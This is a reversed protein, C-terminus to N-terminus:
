FNVKFQSLLRLFKRLIPSTNGQKWVATLCATPTKELISRYVVGERDLNRANSPLISIGMEAAVLGLITVMFVATQTVNPVFSTQSFLYHIQESLGSMVPNLPMIFAENKLDSLPVISQLALPHFEPLVLVFPEYTLIMTELDNAEPLESYLYLFVIDTQQDQLRQLLFASNEEQLILQVEPYQQRFTKFIKPLISNATSSSFGVTLHGSEGQSLSHIKHVTQELQIILTRADELFAEGAVTLRLPRSTRDFLKAGLQAELDQIQQSLPPQTMNLRKAARSFNKEEAVAMFYRLHRLELEM